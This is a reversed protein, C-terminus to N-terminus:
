RRGRLRWFAIFEATHRPRKEGDEIMGALESWEVQMDEPWQAVKAKVLERLRERSGEVTSPWVDTYAETSMM